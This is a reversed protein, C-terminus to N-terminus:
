PCCNPKQGFGIYNDYLLNAFYTNYWNMLINGACLPSDGSTYYNSEAWGMAGMSACAAQFGSPFSTGAGPISGYRNTPPITYGNYFANEIYQAATRGNADSASIAFLSSNSMPQIYGSDAGTCIDPYCTVHGPWTGYNAPNNCSSCIDVSGKGSEHYWQTEVLAVPIGLVGSVWEAFMGYTNNFEDPSLESGCPTTTCGM